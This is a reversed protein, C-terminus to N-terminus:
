SCNQIRLDRDHTSYASFAVNCLCEMQDLKARSTRKPFKIPKASNYLASDAQEHIIFKALSMVFLNSRDPQTQSIPTGAPNLNFVSSAPTRPMIERLAIWIHDVRQIKTPKRVTYTMLPIATDPIRKPIVIGAAKIVSM